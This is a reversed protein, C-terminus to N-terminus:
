EGCNVMVTFIEGDSRRHLWEFSHSGREIIRTMTTEAALTSSMGDTQVPPSFDVVTRGIIESRTCKLTLETAPNCDLIRADGGDIVLYPDPSENFLVRFRTESEATKQQSEIRIRQQRDYDLLLTSTNTLFAFLRMSEDDPSHPDKWYISLSATAKGDTGFIPTSWCGRFEFREALELWPQWASEAFVDPVIVPNGSFTALGADVSDGAILWGKTAM